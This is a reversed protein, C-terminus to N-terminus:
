RKIAKKSSLDEKMSILILRKVDTLTFDDHEDMIKKSIEEFTIPDELLRKINLVDDNDQNILDNIEIIINNDMLVGQNFIKVSM